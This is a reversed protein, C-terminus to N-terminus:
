AVCVCVDLNIVQCIQDKFNMIFFYSAHEALLADTGLGRGHVQGAERQGPAQDRVAM